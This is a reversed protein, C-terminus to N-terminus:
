LGARHIAQQLSPEVRVPLEEAEKEAEKRAVRWRGQHIRAQRRGQSDGAVLHTYNRGDQVAHGRLVYVTGSSGGQQFVEWANAYVGTRVYTQGPLEPPYYIVRLRTRQLGQRMEDEITEPIARRLRRLARLVEENHVEYDFPM